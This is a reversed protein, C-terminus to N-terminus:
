KEKSHGRDRAEARGAEGGRGATGSDDYGSRVARCLADRYGTGGRHRLTRGHTRREHDGHRLRRGDRDGGGLAEDGHRGHRALQGAGGAMRRIEETLATVRHILHAEPNARPDSDYLGDIDSLLVLLDAHCLRAVIASLTDNDGLVKHQGTEIEASSVSDNENM